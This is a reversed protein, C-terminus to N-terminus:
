HLEQYKKREKKVWDKHERTTKFRDTLVFISLYENDDTFSELRGFNSDNHILQDTLSKILLLAEQRTVDIFVKNDIKQYKM